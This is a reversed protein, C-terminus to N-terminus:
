LSFAHLFAAGAPVCVLPAISALKNYSVLNSICCFSLPVINNIYMYLM